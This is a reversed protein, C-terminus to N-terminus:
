ILKRVSRMTCKYSNLQDTIKFFGTIGKCFRHNKVVSRWSLPLMVKERQKGLEYEVIFRVEDFLLFHNTDKTLLYIVSGLYFIFHKCFYQNIWPEISVITTCIRHYIKTKNQFSFELILVTVHQM